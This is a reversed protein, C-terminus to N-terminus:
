TRKEESEELTLVCGVFNSEDLLAPSFASNQRYMLVAPSGAVTETSVTKRKMPVLSQVGSSTSKISELEPIRKRGLGSSFSVRTRM